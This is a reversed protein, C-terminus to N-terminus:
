RRKGTWRDICQTALLITANGPISIDESLGEEPEDALMLERHVLVSMAWALRQRQGGSLLSARKKAPLDARWNPFEREFWEVAKNGIAVRLNEEVTLDPFVNHRQRLYSLGVQARRYAPCTTLTTGKLVIQGATVHAPELGAIANLLTSKGAGNPGTVCVIDGSYIELNLDSIVDRINVKVCLGVIKLVPISDADHSGCRLWTFQLSSM